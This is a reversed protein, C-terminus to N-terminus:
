GIRAWGDFPIDATLVTYMYLSSDPSQVTCLETDPNRCEAYYDHVKSALQTGGRVGAHAWTGVTLGLVGLAACWRVGQEGGHKTRRISSPLWECGLFSRLEYYRSYLM